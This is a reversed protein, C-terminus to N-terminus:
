TWVSAAGPWVLQILPHWRKVSFSCLSAFRFIAAMQAAIQSAPLHARPGMDRDGIRETFRQVKVPM